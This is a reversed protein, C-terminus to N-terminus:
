NNAAATVSFRLSRSFEILHFEPAPGQAGLSQWLPIGSRAAGGLTAPQWSGRVLTTLNLDHIPSEVEPVASLRMEVGVDPMDLKGIAPDSIDLKM